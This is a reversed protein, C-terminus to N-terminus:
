HEELVHGFVIRGAEIADPISIPLGTIGPHARLYREASERTEFFNLVDCCGGVSPGRGRNSGALVVATEPEWWAGDGPDLRVWIEAGSAPDYSTVEILAGLMPAIGLADIACMADVWCAGDILVRHGRPRGAFPYAVVIAGTAPDRHVLDEAAFTAFADEADVGFRTAAAAIGDPSPPEGAAFRRLIWRYLVVEAGSLRRTRESGCRSAPIAAAALAAEAGDLSGRSITM